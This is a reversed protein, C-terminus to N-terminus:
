ICHNSHNLMLQSYLFSCHSLFFSSLITCILRYVMQELTSYHWVLLPASALFRFDYNRDLGDKYCGQFTGVYINVLLQMRPRLRCCKRFIRTPYLCLFLTPCVGCFLLLLTAPIAYPLHERTFYDMKPELLVGEHVTAGTINYIKVIDLTSYFIFTVNSFSLFFFTAYAHIISDSASWNRRVKAFCKHFPKWLYVMPRFNSAHLEICM